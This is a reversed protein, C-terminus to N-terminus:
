LLYLVLLLFSNYVSQPTPIDSFTIQIKESDYFFSKIELDPLLYNGCSFSIFILFTILIVKFIRM